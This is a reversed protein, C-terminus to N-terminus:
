IFILQSNEVMFLIMPVKALISCFEDAFTKHLRSTIGDPGPSSKLSLKNIVLHIGGETFYNYGDNEENEPKTKSLFTM